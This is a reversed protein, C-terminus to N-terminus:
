RRRMVAPGEFISDLFAIDSDTPKEGADMRHHIGMTKPLIQQELIVLLAQEGGARQHQHTM